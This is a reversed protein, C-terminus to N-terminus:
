DKDGEAKKAKESDRPYRDRVYRAMANAGAFVDHIQTAMSLPDEPFAFPAMLVRKADNGLADVLDSHGGLCRAETCQVEAGIAALGTRMDPVYGLLRKKILDKIAANSPNYWAEVDAVLDQAPWKSVKVCIDIFDKAADRVTEDKCWRIFEAAMHMAAIEVKVGIVLAALLPASGEPGLASLIGMGASAAKSAAEEWDGNVAAKFARIADAAAGIIGIVTGVTKLKEAYEGYDEALAEWHKAVEETGKEIAEKALREARGKLVEFTTKIITNKLGAIKSVLEVATASQEVIGKEKAKELKEQITGKVTVLEFIEKGMNTDKLVAAAIGESVLKGAEESLEKAQELEEEEKDLLTQQSVLDPAQLDSHALGERHAEWYAAPRIFEKDIWNLDKGIMEDLERVGQHVIKPARRLEAWLNGKISEWLDLADHSAGKKQEYVLMLATRLEELLGLHQDSLPTGFAVGGLGSGHGKPAATVLDDIGQLFNIYDDTSEKQASAQHSAVAPARQLSAHEFDPSAERLVNGPSDPRRTPPQTPYKELRSPTATTGESSARDPSAQLSAIARAVQANGHSQQLRRIM